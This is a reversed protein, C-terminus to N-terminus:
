KATMAVQGLVDGAGDGGQNTWYVSTADVAIAIPRPQNTAITTPSGGTVPLKMVTGAVINTWYLFGNNAAIGYPALLGSVLTTVPGSGDLPAASVTGAADDTWYIHAGDVAVGCADTAGSALATLAGGDLLMSSLTGPSRGGAFYVHSQDVTISATECTGSLGIALLETSGDGKDTRAIGHDNTVTYVSANDQTMGQAGFSDVVTWDGGDLLQRWVFANNGYYVHMPDVAIGGINTGQLVVEPTGGGKPVRMLNSKAGNAEFTAWYVNADDLAIPVAGPQNAALITVGPSSGDFQTV